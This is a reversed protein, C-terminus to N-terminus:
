LHALFLQFLFMKWRKESEKSPHHGKRYESILQLHCSLKVSYFWPPPPVQIDWKYPSICCQIKLTSYYFIIFANQSSKLRVKRRLLHIVGVNIKNIWHENYLKSIIDKLITHTFNDKFFIIKKILYRIKQLNFNTNRIITGNEPWRKYIRLILTM